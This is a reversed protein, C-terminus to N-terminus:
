ETDIKAKKSIQMFTIWVYILFFCQELDTERIVVEFEKRSNLVNM